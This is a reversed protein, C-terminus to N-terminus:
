VPAQQGNHAPINLTKNSLSFSSVIALTFQKRHWISNFGYQYAEWYHWLPSHTTGNISFSLSERFLLKGLATCSMVLLVLSDPVRDRAGKRQVRATQHGQEVRWLQGSGEKSSGERAQVTHLTLAPPLVLCGSVPLPGTTQLGGARETGMGGSPAEPTHWRGTTTKGKEREQVM